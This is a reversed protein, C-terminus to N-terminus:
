ASRRRLYAEVDALPVWGRGRDDIAIRLMGQDVLEFVARTRIGLRRGADPTRLWAEVDPRYAVRRYTAM